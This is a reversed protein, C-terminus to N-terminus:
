QSEPAGSDAPEKPVAPQELLSKEARFAARLTVVLARFAEAMTQRSKAVTELATAVKQVALENKLDQGKLQDQAWKRLGTEWQTQGDLHEKIKKDVDGIQKELAEKLSNFVNEIKKAHKSLNRNSIVVVIILVVVGVLAILSLVFTPTQM